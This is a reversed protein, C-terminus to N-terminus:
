KDLYLVWHNKMEMGTGIADGEIRRNIIRGRYIQECPRNYGQGTCNRKITISDGTIRGTMPDTRKHPCCIWESTGSIQDNMVNLKWTSHWVTGGVQADVRYTGSTLHGMMGKAAPPAGVSIAVAGGPTRNWNRSQSNWRYIGHGGSVNDTGTVWATVKGISIDTALGPLLEWKTGTWRYINGASNVVWPNGSADVDIRIGRGPFLDWGSGNWHYIEYNGQIQNIGLVFVSGDPGIGIDTAKGPVHEWQRKKWRYIDGSNNVVWPIGFHNVDVRVAEGAVKVFAQINDMWRFISHGYTVPNNGIIWTTGNAGVGIDTAQGPIHDWNAGNWRYIQRSNNLVWVYEKAKSPTNGHTNASHKGQTVTINKWCLSGRNYRGGRYAVSDADGLWIVGSDTIQPSTTHYNKFPIIGTATSILRNDLYLDFTKQSPHAEIRIKYWRGQQLNVIDKLNYSRGPQYHGLRTGWDIMVYIFGDSYLIPFHNDSTNLKVDFRVTYDNAFEYPRRTTFWAGGPHMADICLQNQQSTCRGETLSHPQWSDAAFHFIKNSSVLSQQDNPLNPKDQTPQPLIGGPRIKGSDSIEVAQGQAILDSRNSNDASNEIRIRGQLTEVRVSRDSRVTVVFDTDLGVIKAHPHFTFWQGSNEPGVTVTFHGGGKRVISVFRAKGKRVRVTVSQPSLFGLEILSDESLQISGWQYGGIKLHLLTQSNPGCGIDEWPLVSTPYTKVKEYQELFTGNKPVLTRKFVNGSGSAIEIQMNKLTSRPIDHTLWTKIWDWVQKSETIAVGPLPVAPSHTVHKITKFNVGNLFASAMPVVYDDASGFINGYQVGTRLHRGAEEGQNLAKMFASNAYLQTAALRHKGLFDSVFVGAAYDTYSVGHNPTGVMILKRIDGQFRPYGQIYNRTILGGMSHGIVDVRTGKLGMSRYRKLERRINISLSKSQSNIGQNGSYYTDIIPDFKEGGLYTQLKGWTTRGGTFGHVLLVPPRALLINVAFTSTRGDPYKCTFEVPVRTALPPRGSNLYYTGTNIADTVIQRTEKGPIIKEKLYSKALYAPPFYNLIIQKSGTLPITGCQPTSGSCQITGLSPKKVMLLGKHVGTTNIIIKIGTKGDAIIGTYPKGTLPNKELVAELQIVPITITRTFRETRIRYSYSARNKDSHKVTFKVLGSSDTVKGQKEKGNELLVTKGSFNETSDGVLRVEIQAIDGTRSFHDPSVSIWIDRKICGDADVTTGPATGPCKDRGNPVGDRDTDHVVNGTDTFLGSIAGNRYLEEAFEMKSLGPLDPQPNTVMFIFRGAQWADITKGSGIGFAMKGHFTRKSNSGWLKIQQLMDAKAAAESKWAYIWALHKGTCYGRKDLLPYNLGYRIAGKEGREPGIIEVCFTNGQYSAYTCHSGPGIGFATGTETLVHKITMEQPDHLGTSNMDNSWSTNNNGLCILFLLITYIYRQLNLPRYMADGLM